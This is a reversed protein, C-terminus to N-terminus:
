MATPCKTFTSWNRAYMSLSLKCVGVVQETVNEANKRMLNTREIFTLLKSSCSYPDAYEGGEEDSGPFVDLSYTSHCFHLGPDTDEYKRKRTTGATSM